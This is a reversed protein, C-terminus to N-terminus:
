DFLGPRGTGAEARQERTTSEADLERADATPRLVFRGVEPPCGYRVPHKGAVGESVYLLTRGARFFGRDFRRSYRSPMFVPGVFPLRIQGGHNHGALVLDIGWRSAKYFLDPSHSLLIRCDAPPVDHAAFAPGWPASTGGVALTAGDLEITTWRGELTEFGAQNLEHIIVEPHHDSDHNGLIAFKGLRAELRGFLGNIWPIADDHEVLDGTIVVLDARWPLCADVVSEFFSRESCPALHFDTLQVISLGDLCAPLGPVTVEWERLCLQFAENGPLRLLWSRRDAGVLAAPGMSPALDVTMSTGTIGDPTKRHALRWSCLPWLITGSVVCLLAYSGLPWSWTWWPDHLHKGLLFASTAGFVLLLALRVREMPRERFGLGSAVNIVLVLHYLHGLAPPVVLALIVPWPWDPSM